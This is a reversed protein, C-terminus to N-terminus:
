VQCSPAARRVTPSCCSSSPSSTAMCAIATSLSTTPRATRQRHRSTQPSYQSPPTFDPLIGQKMPSPRHLVTPFLHSLFVRAVRCPWTQDLGLWQLRASQARQSADPTFADLGGIVVPAGCRPSSVGHSGSKRANNANWGRSCCWCSSSGAQKETQQGGREGCLYLASRARVEANNRQSVSLSVPGGKSHGRMIITSRSRFLRDVM